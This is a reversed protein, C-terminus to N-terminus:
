AIDSSCLALYSRPCTRVQITTTNNYTEICVGRERETNPSGQLDYVLVCTVFVLYGMQFKSVSNEYPSHILIDSNFKFFCCYFVCVILYVKVVFNAKVQKSSEAIAYIYYYMYMYYCLCVFLTQM